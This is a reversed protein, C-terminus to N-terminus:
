LRVSEGVLNYEGDALADRVLPSSATDVEQNSLM